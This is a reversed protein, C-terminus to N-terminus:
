SYVRLRFRGRTKWVTWCFEGLFPQFFMYVSTIVDFTSDVNAFGFCGHHSGLQCGRACSYYISWHKWSSWTWQQWHWSSLTIHPVSNSIINFAPYLKKTIQFCIRSVTM